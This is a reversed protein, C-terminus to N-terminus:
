LIEMTGACDGNVAINTGTAQVAGTSTRSAAESVSRTAQEAAINASMVAQSVVSLASSRQEEGATAAVRQESEVVSSSERRQYRLVLSAISQASSILSPTLTIYPSAAAAALSEASNAISQWNQASTHTILPLTLPLSLTSLTALQM